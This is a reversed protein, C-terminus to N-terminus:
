KKKHISYSELWYTTTRQQPSHTVLKLVSKRAVAKGTAGKRRKPAPKM